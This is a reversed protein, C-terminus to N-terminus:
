IQTNIVFFLLTLHKEICNDIGEKSPLSMETAKFITHTSGEPHNKAM